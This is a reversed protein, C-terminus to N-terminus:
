KNQGIIATEKEEKYLNEVEVQVEAEVGVLQLTLDKEVQQWWQESHLDDQMGIQNLVVHELQFLVAMIYLWVLCELKTISIKVEEQKTLSEQHMSSEAYVM